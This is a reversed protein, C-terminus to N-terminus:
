SLASAPATPMGTRTLPRSLLLKRSSKICLVMIIRMATQDSNASLIYVEKAIAADAAVTSNHALPSAVRLISCSSVLNHKSSGDDGVCVSDHM